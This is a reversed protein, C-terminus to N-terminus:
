TCTYCSSVSRLCLSFRSAICSFANRMLMRRCEVSSWLSAGLSTGYSFFFNHMTQLTMTHDTSLTQETLSVKNTSEPSLLLKNLQIAAQRIIKYIISIDRKVLSTFTTITVIAHQTVDTIDKLNRRLHVQQTVQTSLFMLLSNCVIVSSTFESPLFNYTPQKHM